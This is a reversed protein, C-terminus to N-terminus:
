KNFNSSEQYTLKLANLNSIIEHQVKGLLKLDSFGNPILIARWKSLNMEPQFTPIKFHQTHYTM